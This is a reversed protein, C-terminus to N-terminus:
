QKKNNVIKILRVTLEDNKQESSNLWSIFENKMPESITMFDLIGYYYGDGDLSIFSKFFDIESQIEIFGSQIFSSEFELKQDTRSYIHLYQSLKGKIEEAKKFDYEKM